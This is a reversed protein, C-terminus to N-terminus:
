LDSAKKTGFMKLEGAVEGLTTERLFFSHKNPNKLYDQLQNNTEGQGKLLNQSVNAFYNDFKNAPLSQNTIIKDNEM